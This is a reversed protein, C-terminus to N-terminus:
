VSYNYVYYTYRYVYTGGQTDVQHKLNQYQHRQLAPSSEYVETIEETVAISNRIYDYHNPIQLSSTSASKKGAPVNVYRGGPNVEQNFNLKDYGGQQSPIFSSHRFKPSPVTGEKPPTQQRFDVTPFSHNLHEHSKARRPINPSPKHVATGTQDSDSDSDLEQITPITTSTSSNSSSSQLSDHGHKLATAPLSKTLESNGIGYKLRYHAAM